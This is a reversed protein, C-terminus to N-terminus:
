GCASPLVLSDRRVRKASMTGCGTWCSSRMAPRMAGFTASASRRTADLDVAAIKESACRRGLERAVEQNLRGLGELGASEAPLEEELAEPDIEFLFEGAARSRKRGKKNEDM